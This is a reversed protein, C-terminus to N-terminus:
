TSQVRVKVARAAAVWALRIRVDLEEWEPIAAGSVLSKGGTDARYADYAIKGLVEENTM